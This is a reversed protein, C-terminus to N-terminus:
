VLLEVWICCKDWCDVIVVCPGFELLIIDEQAGADVSRLIYWSYVVAELTLLNSKYLM